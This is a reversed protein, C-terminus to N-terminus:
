KTERLAPKWGIAAKLPYKLYDWFVGPKYVFSTPRQGESRNTLTVAIEQYSGTLFKCWYLEEVIVPFRNESLRMKMLLDTRVARFGNTCDRVPLGFLLHALANGARSIWVRYAPVGDVRGGRSYRTAKIVAAGQEMAAAFKPIDAPDNTLDSDMFLAYAFGQQHACEAGTRLAAGYGRNAPHEVLLLKPEHEALGRLIAGTGDQSGDNVVILRTDDALERLEACVREVCRAAASEENYMPIVVAFRTM